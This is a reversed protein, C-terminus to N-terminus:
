RNIEEMYIKKELPTYARTITAPAPPNGHYIKECVWARIIELHLRDVDFWPPPTSGISKHWKTIGELEVRIKGATIRPSTHKIYEKIFSEKTSGPMIPAETQESYVEDYGTIADCNQDQRGIYFSIIKGDPNTEPSAYSVEPADSHFDEHLILAEDMEKYTYFKKM